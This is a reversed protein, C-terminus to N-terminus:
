KMKKKMDKDLMMKGDSMMHKKMPMRASVKGKSYIINKSQRSNPM